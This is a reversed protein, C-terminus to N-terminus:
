WLTRIGVHEGEAWGGWWRIRSLTWWEGTPAYMFRFQASGRCFCHTTFKLKGKLGRFIAFGDLKDQIKEKSIPTHLYITKSNASIAPFIYDDDQLPCGLVQEMYEIWATLHTYMCIAPMKPQAYIDYKNGLCTLKRKSGSVKYYQGNFSGGTSKMKNQWGKRNHLDVQFFPIQTQCEHILHANFM